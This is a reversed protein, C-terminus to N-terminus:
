VAPTIAIWSVTTSDGPDASFTVTLTNSTPVAKAISVANTSTLITATVISSTTLGTATFANSTGGGAYSSTTNAKVSFGADVMLGGTGSAKVLNGSVFPTATAGVLFRGVANAPDPISIVSAQNMAVNSLTTITDGSNAVAAVVLSGKSPSGSFSILTGATGSLGAQLSGGNIATGTLNALSGDTDTSVMLHNAITPLAVDGPSAIQVLSVVTNQITADSYTIVVKLWVPGDDTTYVLAMQNNSYTFGEQKSGTLYGTTTVTAYTDSTLIYIISPTVSVLGTPQATQISLIAM